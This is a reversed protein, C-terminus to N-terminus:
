ADGATVTPQPETHRTRAREWDDWDRKCSEYGECWDDLTNLDRFMWGVAIGCAFLFLGILTQIV